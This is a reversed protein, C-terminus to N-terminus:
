RGTSFFIPLKVPADYVDLRNEFTKFQTMTGYIFEGVKMGEPLPDSESIQYTVTSSNEADYYIGVDSAAFRISLLAQCQLERNISIEM